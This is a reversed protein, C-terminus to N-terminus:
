QPEGAEEPAPQLLLQKLKDTDPPTLDLAKFVQRNISIDFSLPYNVPNEFRQDLDFYQEILRSASHAVQEISSHIAAIAGANVFNRSFAIVPKRHRYSTLLINKVSKSNYINSDPLALLVDSHNLAHKVKDTLNEEATISVIMTKIDSRNACQQIVASNLPKERSNLISITKWKNNLLKIFQIQRCYSQTMYLIADSKNKNKNLRFKKPDTSIFLKGTEPYHENASQMGEAGIGIILDTSNNLQPIKKDPTVKSIVIDPRKLRLDDSLKQIIDSHLTNDASFIIFVHHKQTNNNDLPTTAPSIEASVPPTTCSISFLLIHILLRTLKRQRRVGQETKNM